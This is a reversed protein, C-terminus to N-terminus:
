PHRTPFLVSFTSGRGVESDVLVVGGADTAIRWVNALGLGTGRDGKTTFYPEFLRRRVEPPIGPGTDTVELVAHPIDQYGTESSEAGHPQMRGTISVTGGKAMADVANVVLNM